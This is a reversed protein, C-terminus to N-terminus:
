LADFCYDLGVSLKFCTMPNTYTGRSWAVQLVFCILLSKKNVKSKHLSSLVFFVGVRWVSKGWDNKHLQPKVVGHHTLRDDSKAIADWYEKLVEETLTSELKWPKHELAYGFWKILYLEKSRSRSGRDEHSFKREVEYSADEEFIPTPPPRVKDDAIYPWLLSVHFVDHIKTSPLEMHYAVVGIRKNTRFHLLSFNDMM